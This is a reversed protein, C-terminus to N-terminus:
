PRQAMRSNSKTASELVREVYPSQKATGVAARKVSEAAQPNIHIETSWGVSNPRFVRQILQDFSGAHLQWVCSLVLREYNQIGVLARDLAGALEDWQGAAWLPPIVKRVTTTVAELETDPLRLDVYQKKLKRHLKWIQQARREIWIVKAAHIGATAMDRELSHIDRILEEPTAHDNRALEIQEVRAQWAKLAPGLSLVASGKIPTHQPRIQLVRIHAKASELAVEATKLPRLLEDETERQQRKVEKASELRDFVKTREPLKVMLDLLRAQEELLSLWESRLHTLHSLSRVRYTPIRRPLAYAVIFILALCQWVAWTLWLDIEWWSEIPPRRFATEHERFWDDQYVPQGYSEAMLRHLRATLVEHQRDADKIAHQPKHIYLQTELWMRGTAEALEKAKVEAFQALEHIEQGLRMRESPKTALGHSSRWLWRAPWGLARFFRSGASRFPPYMFSPYSIVVGISVILVVAAATADSV